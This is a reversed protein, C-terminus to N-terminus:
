SRSEDFTEFDSTNPEKISFSIPKRLRISIDEIRLLAREETDIDYQYNKIKDNSANGSKKKCSDRSQKHRLLTKGFEELNKIYPEIAETDANIEQTLSIINDFGEVIYERLNILEYLKSHDSLKDELSLSKLKDKIKKIYVLSSLGNNTEFCDTQFGFKEYLTSIELSCKAAEKFIKTDDSHNYQISDILLIEIDYLSCIVTIRIKSVLLNVIKKKEEKEGRKASIWVSVQGLVFILVSVIPQSFLPSLLSLINTPPTLDHLIFESAKAVLFPAFLVVFSPILIGSKNDIKQFWEL